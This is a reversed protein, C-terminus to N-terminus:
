GNAQLARAILRADPVPNKLRPISAYSGNGIVLALRDGGARAPLGTTLLIAVAVVFATLAVGSTRM